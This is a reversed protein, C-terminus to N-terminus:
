TMSFIRFHLMEWTDAQIKMSITYIEQLHVCNILEVGAQVQKLLEHEPPLPFFPGGTSRTRYVLLFQHSSQRKLAEPMM